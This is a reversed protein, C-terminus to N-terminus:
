WEDDTYFLPSIESTKHKILDIEDKSLRKKWNLINNKSDRIYENGAQQEVPNHAGSSALIKSKVNETFALGFKKFIMEFHYLPDLSLDEHKIFFWHPHKRQYITITHHICNWLLIGQEILNKKVEAYERIENDYKSLYKEMLLPQNLFNNFDFDWKKIKLSSCFAAPHRIMVLVNMDFSQQLWESSFFAIPDKFIPTDRKIRHWFFIAQDRCIKAIDRITSIKIMNSTLPYNLNLVNHLDEYSNKSNEECLYQFWYEFHKQTVGFKIGINFPEQIYATYPAAALMRGAWTSGSRHSGTILIPKPARKM